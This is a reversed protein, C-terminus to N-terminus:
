EGARCKRLRHGRVRYELTSGLLKVKRTTKSALGKVSGDRNTSDGQVREKIEELDAWERGKMHRVLASKYHHGDAALRDALEEEDPERGGKRALLEREAVTTAGVMAPGSPGGIPTLSCLGASAEGGSLSEFGGAQFSGSRALEYLRAIANVKFSLSRLLAAHHGAAWAEAAQNEDLWGPCAAGNRHSAHWLRPHPAYDRGYARKFYNALDFRREPPIEVPDVAHRRARQSLVEFGFCPGRMGWHLWISRPLGAAFAFFDELLCRELEALRAPIEPPSIREREAIHLSAFTRQDGTLIHQVVIASVAPTAATCDEAREQTCHIVYLDDDPEPLPPAPIEGPQPQPRRVM